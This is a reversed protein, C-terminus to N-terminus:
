GLSFIDSAPGVVDWRGAAQEPSMYAPTGLAWGPQTAGPSAEDPPLLTEEGGAREAETRAFPRALGWDVVLTEGFTGLMGNAPKLDPHIIGRSHAYAMANCVAVFHNLLERLALRQAVSNPRTREAAHYSELAQQLSQGEIFRMAYCPSGGEDVVLG